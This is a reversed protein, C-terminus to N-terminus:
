RGLGLCQSNTLMTHSRSCTCPFCLLCTSSAQYHFSQKYQYIPFGQSDTLRLCVVTIRILEITGMGFPFFPLSKTCLASVILRTIYAFGLQCNTFEYGMGCIYRNFKNCAKVEFLVIAPLCAHV